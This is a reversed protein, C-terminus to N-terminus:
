KTRRDRTSDDDGAMVSCTRLRWMQRLSNTHLRLRGKHRRYIVSTVFDCHWINLTRHFIFLSPSSREARRQQKQPAMRVRMWSHMWGYLSIDLWGLPRSNESDNSIWHLWHSWSNMHVIQEINIQMSFLFILWCLILYLWDINQSTM